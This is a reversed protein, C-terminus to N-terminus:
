INKYHPFIKNLESFKKSNENENISKKIKMTITECAINRKDLIKHTELPLNSLKTYGKDSEYIIGSSGNTNVPNIYNDCKNTINNNEKQFLKIADHLEMREEETNYYCNTEDDFDFNSM